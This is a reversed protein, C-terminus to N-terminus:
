GWLCRRRRGALRRRSSSVRWRHLGTVPWEAARGARSPLQSPFINRTMPRIDTAGVPRPPNGSGPWAGPRSAAAGSTGNRRTRAARAPRDTPVCSGDRRPRLLYAASSTPWRSVEEAAVDAATVPVAHIKKMRPPIAAALAIWRSYWRSKSRSGCPTRSLSLRSIQNARVTPPNARVPAMPGPSRALPGTRNQSTARAVNVPKQHSVIHNSSPPLTELRLSKGHATAVPAHQAAMSATKETVREPMTILLSWLYPAIPTTNAKMDNNM